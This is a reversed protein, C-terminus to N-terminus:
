TFNVLYYMPNIDEGAAEFLLEKSPKSAGYQLMNRIISGVDKSLPDHRCKRHWIQAACVRAYLYSYYGGVTYIMLSVSLIGRIEIISVEM